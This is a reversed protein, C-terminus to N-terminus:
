FAMGVSLHLVFDPDGSSPAPNWGLDLRVPGIPLLYRLGAGIAWEIDQFEFYDEHRGTVNGLDVFGAVQVRSGVEQRLELNATLFAEGGLQEGNADSPGLENFRFSRVTTQGGNFFREQFPVTESDSTTVIVGTRFASALITSDTLRVYTSTRLSSRIFDLESGLAGDGLELTLQNFWGRTPLFFNDRTDMLQSVQVSSVNLNNLAEEVASDFVRIDLARSRRFQYGFTTAHQPNWERTWFVGAGLDEQTYSPLRRRDYRVSLDASLDSGLFWPDTLTVAARQALEALTSEVRLLRGSGWLNRKRYGLSLRTREYSGYGPEIFFEGTAVEELAVTLERKESESEELDITVRSFLGTEYLRRVSNRVKTADFVDGESLEMRSRLFTERTRLNDPFRIKSIRVVPGAALDFVIDVKFDADRPTQTVEIVPTAYGRSTLLEILRGRLEFATRQRFVHDAALMGQLAEECAEALQAPLDTARIHAEGVEYRSGENVTVVISASRRDASYDQSELELQADLYGLEIYRDELASLAKEIDRRAFFPLSGRLLTSRETPLAEYFNQPTLVMLGKFDVKRLVTRPGESIAFSLSPREGPELTYEIRSFPFGASEYVTALTFAADDAYARRFGSNEFDELDLALRESLTSRSLKENGEFVLDFPREPEQIPLVSRCGVALGTIGLLTMGTIRTMGPIALGLSGLLQSLRRM